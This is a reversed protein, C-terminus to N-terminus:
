ATVLQPEGPVPQAALDAAEAEIALGLSRTLEVFDPV